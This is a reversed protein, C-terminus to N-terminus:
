EVTGKIVRIGSIKVHKTWLGPQFDHDLLWGNIHTFSTDTLKRSITYEHEEGDNIYYSPVWYDRVGTESSDAHWFFINTRLSLSQDDPYVIASFIFQYMGTDKVPISFWIKNQVGDSPITFSSRLNWLNFPSATIEEAELRSQIESLRAIVQDYIKELKKPNNLLYYHITLDVKEKTYGHANIVDIYNLTSDKSIFNNKVPPYSLLGDALYLDTLMSVLEKPPITENKKIHGKEGSCSLFLLMIFLIAVTVASGAPSPSLILGTEEKLYK